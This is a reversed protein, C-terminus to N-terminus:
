SELCQFEQPQKKQKKCGLTRRNSTLFVISNVSYTHCSGANKQNKNVIVVMFLYTKNEVIVM